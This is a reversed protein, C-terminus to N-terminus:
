VCEEIVVEGRNVWEILSDIKGEADEAAYAIDLVDDDFMEGDCTIDVDRMDSHLEEALARATMLHCAIKSMMMLAEKKTM